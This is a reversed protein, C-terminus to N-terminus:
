KPSILHVFSYKTFAYALFPRELAIVISLFFNLDFKGRPNWNPKEIFAESLKKVLSKGSKGLKNGYEKAM